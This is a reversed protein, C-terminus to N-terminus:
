RRALALDDVLSRFMEDRDRSRLIASPHITAIVMKALDSQPV